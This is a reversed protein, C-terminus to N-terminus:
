LRRGDSATFEKGENDRFINQQCVPCKLYYKHDAWPKFDFKTYELIAGCHNCKVIKPKIHGYNVIRM